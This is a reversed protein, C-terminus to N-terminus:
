EARLRPDLADRLADGFLNAPLVLGLMFAFAAVLKWWIIPERSMEGLADNIMSGWSITDPGVGVGIYTLVAEALVRGSFSLVATILVLHAVNPAIHTLMIRTRSVGTAFAAQTFETERLKMAEGRVLRCIGTWSTIGLIICLQLLGRGFIAMFAVILLISPISALTTYIFQIIDDVWGGMYGALIGFLLAFPIVILTTALGLVLGTRIGKLSLYLVDNGVKDTGMVHTRPYKLPPHVSTLTGNASVTTEKTSQFSAMPASYTKEGTKRLGTLLIDLVSLGSKDLLVHGSRPDMRPSGDRTRLYPHYGISDLLGIGTYLCLILFCIRVGRRRFVHRFALRWYDKQALRQTTRLLVLVIVVVILNKFYWCHWISGISEKWSLADNTVHHWIGQLFRSM